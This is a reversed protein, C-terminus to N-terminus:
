LEIIALLQQKFAPSTHVREALFQIASPEAAVNRLSLPHESIMGLLGISSSNVQPGFEATTQTPYQVMRSYFRELASPHTPPPPLSADKPRNLSGAKIKSGFAPIGSSDSAMYRRGIPRINQFLRTM